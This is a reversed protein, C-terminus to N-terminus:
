SQWPFAQIYRLEFLFTASREAAKKNETAKRTSVRARRECMRQVVGELSIGFEKLLVSAANRVPLGTV